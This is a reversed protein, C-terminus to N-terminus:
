RGKKQGALLRPAERAKKKQAKQARAKAKFRFALLWAARRAALPLV